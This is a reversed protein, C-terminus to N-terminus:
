APIFIGKAHGGSSGEYYNRRVRLAFIEFREEGTNPLMLRIGVYEDDVVGRGVAGSFPRFFQAHM